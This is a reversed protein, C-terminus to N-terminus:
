IICTLSIMCYKDKERHLKNGEPDKLSTVFPLIENNEMTKEHNFLTGDHTHARM